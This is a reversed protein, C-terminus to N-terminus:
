AYRGKYKGRVGVIEMVSYLFKVPDNRIMRQLGVVVDDERERADWDDQQSLARLQDFASEIARRMKTDFGLVGETQAVELKEILKRMTIIRNEFLKAEDRLGMGKMIKALVSKQKLSLRLPTKGTLRFMSQLFQNNRDRAHATAIARVMAEEEPTRNRWSQDPMSGRFQSGKHIGLYSKGVFWSNGEDDHAMGRDDVYVDSEDIQM